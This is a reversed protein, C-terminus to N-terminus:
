ALADAITQKALTRIREVLRSMSFPKTLYEVAGLNRGKHKEGSHGRATAFIVPINQTCADSKLGAVLGFGDLGPMSVDTVIVDPRWSVATAQANEPERLTRVEMGEDELVFQLLELYRPDDDIILVKEV